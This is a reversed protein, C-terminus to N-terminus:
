LEFGCLGLHVGKRFEVRPEDDEEHLWWGSRGNIVMMQRRREKVAGSKAAAITSAMSGATTASTTMAVGIMTAASSRPCREAEGSRARQLTDDGSSDKGKDEFGRFGGSFAVM